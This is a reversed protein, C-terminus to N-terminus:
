EEGEAYVFRYYQDAGGLVYTGGYQVIYTDGKTVDLWCESMVNAYCTNGTRNNKNTCIIQNWMGSNGARMGLQVSGNAPATYESGSALLTLDIYRSSPKGAGSIESKDSRKLLDVPQFVTLSNINGNIVNIKAVIVCSNDTYAAGNLTKKWINLNANFYQWYLGSTPTKENYGVSDTGWYGLTDDNNLFIYLNGNKSSDITVSIDNSLIKEINKLTEDANRGDSILVKLGSKVTITSGSYTAVGNPAELICNTIQQKNLKEDVEAKVEDVYDGLDLAYNNVKCNDDILKNLNDGALVDPQLRDFGNQIKTNDFETKVGDIAFSAPIIVSPKTPKTM